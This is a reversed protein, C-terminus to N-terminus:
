FEVTVEGKEEIKVGKVGKLATPDQDAKKMAQLFKPDKVMEAGNLEMLTVSDATKHAANTKKIPSETQVRMNMKLDAFMSKFMGAMAEMQAAQAPDEKENKAKAKAKDQAEKLPNKITLKGSSYTFTMDEGKKESNGMDPAYSVKSIDEFTYTVKAGGGETKELSKFKVGEGLKSAREKAKDEDLLQKAQDGALAAASESFKVSEQITGSGDKNVSVVAELQICSPVLSLAAGLFLFSCLNKVWAFNKMAGLM